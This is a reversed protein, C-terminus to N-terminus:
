KVTVSAKAWPHIMCFYDYKGSEEFKYSFTENQMILGSDFKGDPGNVVNGSTVTHASSDDNKWIIEAGKFIILSPPDYCRDADECGPISTGKPISVLRSPLKSTTLEKTLEITEDASQKGKEMTQEVKKAAQKIDDVAQKAVLMEYIKEQTGDESPTKELSSSVDSVYSANIGAFGVGIAVIVISIVIGAKDM